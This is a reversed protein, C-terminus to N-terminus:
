EQLVLFLRRAKERHEDARRFDGLRRYAESLRAHIASSDPQIALARQLAPVARSPQDQGLYSRGLLYWDSAARQRQVVEELRRNAEEFDRSEMAADALLLLCSVRAEAPLDASGLAKRAYSVAAARDKESYLGALASATEPDPLGAEGVGKLLDLARRQFAAAHGSPVNLPNNGAAYYALGLNRRADLPALGPVDEFPVLEPVPGSSDGPLPAAGPRLDAPRRAIRHDTFAVHPVETDGRPMHCALCNDAPEKKRREAEDLSCGQASHCTLCKQRYFEASDKPKEAAHPDHCTLCTLDASKQYCLSQRMQAVHGAVTMSEEGGAFRYDVRYDTLPRGPRYDGAPRGRLAITAPGSLHCAACVAEALPRPLKGPNVITLDDGAPVPVPGRRLAEHRSGPGHCSECGIALEDFRIRHLTGDTAEARGAHCVVCAALIPRDFGWHKPLDYGPSIDWRKRSAFWTIPSEHLFGDIVLLYTRAFHGSGIRYRVPVDVRTLEQGDASRLVEEHRLEGDRRYVRYSRNSLTHDFAGDPPEASPDVEALSRSHATLLYSRHKAPHCAACAATGIYHAEPGTNLFPSESYAPLPFSDAPPRPGRGRYLWAALLVGAVAGAALVWTVRRTRGPHDSM